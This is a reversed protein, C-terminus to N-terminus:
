TELARKARELAVRFDIQAQPPIEETAGLTGPKATPATVITDSATVIESLAGRM